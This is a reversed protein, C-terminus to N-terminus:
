RKMVTEDLNLLVNAVITWAALDTVDADKPAPGLPNTALDAAKKPDAAFAVRAEDHLKVLREVEADRPPRALCVRFGFRAKDSETAGTQAIRRALAQAAEVYVPDNMTVLAQLPTNTRVRRLTCVERNPADFTAMSPYPSTRRWETYLARRYRDEGASTQWDLGGGFAANLGLAPRAPRVSPGYMKASLLGSVALAQDRVAEASMRFRPGRALLRNDPDREALDAAVKSSQRYAASTVLLKLFHKVDWRHPPQSNPASPESVSPEMLECALWDLLEPHSPLEGQSGFEESTRVIGIGFIQEWFRNAIVRATVPNNEDVLWKALTLRNLPAGPPLPPFAEPVGETVEDALSLYNGRLQINTKRRKDAALEHMVPVTNPKLDALLRKVIVLRDRERKLEPAIHQLYHLTLLDNQHADRKDASLSLAALVDSPTRAHEAVGGDGTAVIRFHGLTRNADPSAQDITVVLKSGPVVEVPAAAVLTLSHPKGGAGIAWGIKKEDKKKNKEDKKPAANEVLVSSADYGPETVDAFAAAFRVTHAGNASFSVSPKPPEKVEQQWVPERKEDLLEIRFDRLRDGLGADTRNWVVIRDISQTSKLDVEWWPNEAKATHTTSNAKFYDGDTNGDIARKAEGGYGTSIQSAEGSLAINENGRFVQVEALALLKDKGPIEVRVYRGSPRHDEPPVVSARVHTIVFDGNPAHGPGKGPLSDHPLADIRIASIKTIPSTSLASHENSPSHGAKAKESQASLVSSQASEGAETLALKVTYSDNKKGPAVLVSGDDQATMAAGANSKMSAPSLADWKPPKPFNQEWKAQSALLAPTPTKLKKELAAIETELKTREDKQSKTFFKLTPEEDARDADETNNLFAFIRFYDRQSLPDYKHDHCQACAFSTGMWVAMTTNVRDVIAVNRFEERNTGGESNTMTNRHFATAMLQEETPNPLLDGALQEITFQDFPKNANFSKIAYDRFAWIQRTPDNAYGASDAYRALDLWMRAWHEGFRPSALLRDVLKEYAGPSQDNVFQDVEALTPPLGILDLSVRRILTYRDAEPQPTLHEKELRALIFADIPNTSLAWHETSLSSHDASKESAGTGSQASLVSFQASKGPVVPRVPKVYAWHKAYKAGQKIWNRFAEIQQPTLKEGSKPPPMLDDPDSTALRKVLESKDPDGPVIAAYGGLDARSGEETDLGLGGKGKPGGKREKADPGHCKFCINSLVPKIDRNFDVPAEVASATVGALWLVGAAISLCGARGMRPPNARSDSVFVHHTMKTRPGTSRGSSVTLKCRRKKLSRPFKRWRKASAV